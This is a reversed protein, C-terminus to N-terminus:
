RRGMTWTKGGDHTEIQHGCGHCAYAAFPSGGGFRIYQENCLRCTPRDDLGDNCEWHRDAYPKHGHECFHGWLEQEFEPTLIEANIGSSDGGYLITSDPVRHRIWRAVALIKPLPGREYGIGYYRVFLHVEYFCQGNVPAIVPGDQRYEEIKQICHHAGEGLGLIEDLSSPGSDVYGRFPFMVSGFAEHLDVSMSLLAGPEIKSETIFFM